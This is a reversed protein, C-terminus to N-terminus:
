AGKLGGKSLRYILVAALACRESLSTLDIWEDTTHLGGGRVGLTDITPLGAAQLNNGDCVGGTRGFPLKQGLDEAADRAQEALARTGDTLPKAPRHFSRRVTVRPMAEPPTALSDIQRGLDDGAQTTSFRVNGWAAAKDPVINTAHGGEIPGVNVITGHQPASMGALSVLREALASVASVGSTFDRGVHSSRGQVELMFQGSGPREVVLGGDAMAPEFVLGVDHSKAETRMTLDSHYSGTEEDSSIAFGWSCAVGLEELIELAHLAVVLGGKMDACGPGTARTMSSDHLLSRFMSTAEHVTDIHGCLLVRAGAVSAPRRCLAMPPVLGSELKGYLWGEKSQGPALTTAAGLAELRACILGRCDDLGDGGPGTPIEVLRRLDGILAGQRRQAENVLRQEIADLPM